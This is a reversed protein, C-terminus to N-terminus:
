DDIRRLKFGALHGLGAFMVAFATEAIAVIVDGTQGVGRVMLASWSTFAALGAVALFIRPGQRHPGMLGSAVGLLFCGVVSVAALAVVERGLLAELGVRLVSGPVAGAVAVLLKMWLKM